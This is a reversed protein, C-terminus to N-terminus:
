IPIEWETQSPQNSESPWLEKPGWKRLKRSRCRHGILNWSTFIHVHVNLVVMRSYQLHQVIWVYWFLEATFTLGDCASLPKNLSQVMGEEATRASFPGIFEGLNYTNYVSNISCAIYIHYLTYPHLGTIDYRIDFLHNPDRTWFDTSQNCFIILLLVNRLNWIPPLM